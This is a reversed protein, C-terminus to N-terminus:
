NQKLLIQELLTRIQQIHAKDRESKDRETQDRELNGCKGQKIANQNIPTLYTDSLYTAMQMLDFTIVGADSSASDAELEAATELGEQTEEVEPASGLNAEYQGGYDELLQTMNSEKTQEHLQGYEEVSLGHCKQVHKRIHNRHNVAGQVAEIRCMPTEGDSSIVGAESSAYDAELEAAAELGEQTEEVDPASTLNSSSTDTAEYQRGYDEISLGMHVRALHNRILDKQWTIKARCIKCEYIKTSIRSHDKHRLNKKLKKHSNVDNYSTFTANCTHCQFFCKDYWANESLSVQLTNETKLAETEAHNESLPQLANALPDKTMQSMNSDLHEEHLQGYEEVSLSHCKFVHKRMSNRGWMILGDCIKCKYKSESVVTYKNHSHKKVHKSAASMNPFTKPCSGCQYLCRSNYWSSKESSSATPETSKKSKKKDKITYKKEYKLLSLGHKKFVHNKISLRCWFMSKHCKHCEYMPRSLAEYKKHKFKKTHKGATDANLFHKSCSGCKYDCRDHWPRNEGNAISELTATSNTNTTAVLKLKSSKKKAKSDKSNNPSNNKVSEKNMEERNQNMAEGDDREKHRSNSKGPTVSITAHESENDSIRNLDNTLSTPDIMVVTEDEINNKRQDICFNPFELKYVDVTMKHRVALHYVLEFTDNLVKMDCVACCHLEAHV